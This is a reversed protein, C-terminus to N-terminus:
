YGCSNISNRSWSPPTNPLAAHWVDSRFMLCDGARVCAKKAKHIRATLWVYGHVLGAACWSRPRLSPSSASIASIPLQVRGVGVVLRSEEVAHATGPHGLIV